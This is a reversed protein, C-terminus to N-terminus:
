FGIRSKCYMGLQIHLCLNGTATSANTQWGFFINLKPLSTSTSNTLNTPLYQSQAIPMEPLVFHDHNNILLSGPFQLVQTVSYTSIVDYPGQRVACAGLAYDTATTSYTHRPVARVRLYDWRMEGFNEKIDAYDSSSNLLTYVDINLDATDDVANYFLDVVRYIPREIQENLLQQQSHKSRKSQKNQKKIMFNKDRGM